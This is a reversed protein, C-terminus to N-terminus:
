QLLDSAAVIDENVVIDAQEYLSQVFALYDAGGAQLALQEKGADRDAVPISRPDGPLVAQLSFVVQSGGTSAVQGRTPRDQAPKSAQFVQAVLAPDLEANNRDILTPATVTAGAAEAATAFAEGNEVAQLLQAARENVITEARQRRIAAEVLDRVEELPQRSAANHEVVKFVASRNADLEIVESIEGDHLVSAAFIADIAAQNNGFPGADTRQINEAVLVDLGVNDAIQRIDTYDFLADSVARELDRFLGETESERLESLLEGRVQDLPLPGREFITDLRVIHYGFDSKVLGSLAGEELTFISSGLEGPLQTRTLVGLDGGQSATGGDMSYEAALEEFAEGATLRDLLGQATAEAADEDDEFLILIHRAQRQEDQLYRSQSELYYDNLAEETVEVTEALSARNIELYEVTASEPVLFLSDNEEYYASIAADDVEVEAAAAAIDFTALSVLRREAILNLYRRYDAPTVIATGGIARQLQDQRMQRRQANRFQGITFGNQTLLAEATELDFKGDLQFEPIRQIEAELQADGIQYGADSLHQEVLRERVLADLVNQRLQVRFESPLQALQPNRSLQTQYTNEFEVVSIESGDVRAAYSSGTFDLNAGFFVFSVGIVALIAIAIGGAFKERIQSLM